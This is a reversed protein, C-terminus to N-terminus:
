QALTGEERGRGGKRKRGSGSAAPGKEAVIESPRAFLSRCIKAGIFGVGVPVSVRVRVPVRVCASAPMALAIRIHVCNFILVSVSQFLVCVYRTAFQPPSTLWSLRFADRIPSMLALRVVSQADTGDCWCACAYRPRADAPKARSRLSCLEALLYVRLMWLHTLSPLFSISWLFHADLSM